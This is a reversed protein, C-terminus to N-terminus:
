GAIRFAGYSLFVLLDPPATTRGLAKRIGRADEDIVIQYGSTLYGGQWGRCMDRVQREIVKYDEQHLDEYM